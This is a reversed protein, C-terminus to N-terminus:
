ICSLSHGRVENYLFLSNLWLFWCLTRNSCTINQPQPKYNATPLFKAWQGARRFTRMNIEVRCGSPKSCIMQLYLFPFCIFVHVFIFVSVCHCVSICVPICIYVCLCASVCVMWWVVAATGRFPLTMSERSRSRFGPTGIKLWKPYFYCCWKNSLEDLCKFVMPIQNYGTKQNIKAELNSSLNSLQSM